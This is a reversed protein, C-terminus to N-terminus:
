WRLGLEARNHLIPIIIMGEEIRPNCPIFHTGHDVACLASPRQQQNSNSSGTNNFSQTLSGPRGPTIAIVAPGLLIFSLDSLLIGWAAM